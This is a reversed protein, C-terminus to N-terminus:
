AQQRRQRLWHWGDHLALAGLIGIVPLTPGSLRWGYVWPFVLCLSAFNMTVWLGLLLREARWRTHRCAAAVFGTLALLTPILIQWAIESKWIVIGFLYALKYGVRYLFAGPEALIYDIAIRGQEDAAPIPPFDFPHFSDGVPPHNGIWLNFGGSAPMPIWEGTVTANRWATFLLPLLGAALLILGRSFRWSTGTAHPFSAWVAAVMVFPLFNARTGIAMALLLAALYLLGTQQTHRWRVLAALMGTSLIVSFTTDLLMAPYKLLEGSTLMLLTAVMAVPRGLAQRALAYFLLVFASMLLQQLWVLMLVDEGALVHMGAMWYRYAVNMFFPKGETYAANLWDGKLIDSAQTEYRLWDNGATFIQASPELGKDIQRLLAATAMLTFLTLLALRGWRIERWNRWQVHRYVTLALLLLWGIFAGHHLAKWRTNDETFGPAPSYASAPIDTFTNGNDSWRLHLAPGDDGTRRYEAVLDVTRTATTEIIDTSNGAQLVDDGIRVTADGARTMLKLHTIRDPITITGSWIASFRFHKRRHDDEPAERWNFRHWDNVFHLPFGPDSLSFGHPSFDLAPDIRTAFGSLEAYRWSTEHPPTYNDNAYYSALLGPPHYAGLAATKIIAVIIFGAILLVHGRSTFPKVPFIFLWLATLTACTITVPTVTMQVLGNIDIYGGLWFASIALWLILLPYHKM